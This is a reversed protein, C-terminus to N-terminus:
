CKRGGRVALIIGVALACGIIAKVQWDLSNWFENLSDAWSSKPTWVITSMSNTENILDELSKLEDYIKSINKDYSVYNKIVTQEIPKGTSADWLDNIRVSSNPPAFILREGDFIGFTGNIPYVEGRKLKPIDGFVWGQYTYNGEPTIITVNALRKVNTPVGLLALESIAFIPDGSNNFDYNYQMALTVPDLLESIDIKGTKIQDYYHNIIQETYEDISNIVEYYVNNLDRLTDLFLEYEDYVTKGNFVIEEVEKIELRNYYNCDNGKCLEVRLYDFCTNELYGKSYLEYLYRAGISEARERTTYAYHIPVLLEWRTANPNCSIDFEKKLCDESDRYERYECTCGDKSVVTEEKVWDSGEPPHIRSYELYASYVFSVLKNHAEIVNDTKNAILRRVKEKAKDEAKTIIAVPAKGSKVGEQISDLIEKKAVTWLYARDYQAFEKTLYLLQKVEDNTVRTTERIFRAKAKVDTMKQVKSLDQTKFSLKGFYSGMLFGIAGGGVAGVALPIIVPIAVAQGMLLTVLFLPLIVSKRM